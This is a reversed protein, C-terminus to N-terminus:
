LIREAKYSRRSGYGSITVVYKFVGLELLSRNAPRQFLEDKSAAHVSALIGAGCGATQSVAEVDCPKTIEDMVIIEPNMARLLMMCGEAKPIGSLVDCHDGLDFGHGSGDDAFLENREDAVAIRKGRNSLCRCLERLATTKGGGPASIILTSDFSDPYIEKILRDCIGHCERPIRIALSNFSRFSHVQGKQVNVNGCVGIRLGDCNIYGQAIASEAMHFSAGTAKEIIRRIDQSDTEHKSFTNERGEIVVCPKKGLRIRIEEVGARSYKAMDAVLYAPLISMAKDFGNM